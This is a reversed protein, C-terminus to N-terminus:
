EFRNKLKTLNYISGYVSNEILTENRVISNSYLFVDKEIKSGPLIICNLGIWTNNLIIVNGIEFYSNKYPMLSYTSNSLNKPKYLNSLSYIKTGASIVVNNDILIGGHGSILVNPCIHINSKIKVFGRPIINNEIKNDIIIGSLNISTSIFVFKDIHVNDGIEIFECGEIYVNESVILNNGCFKLKKKYYYARLKIGLSGSLNRILSLFIIYFLNSFRNIM